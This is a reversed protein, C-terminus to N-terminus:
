GEEEPSLDVDYESKAFEIAKVETAFPGDLPMGDENGEAVLYYYARVKM